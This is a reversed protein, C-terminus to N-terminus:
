VKFRLGLHYGIVKVRSEGKLVLNGKFVLSLPNDM